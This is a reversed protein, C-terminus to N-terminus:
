DSFLGRVLDALASGSDSSVLIGTSNLTCLWWPFGSEETYEVSLANKEEILTLTKGNSLTVTHTM